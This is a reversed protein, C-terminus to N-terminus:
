LTIGGPTRKKGGPFGYGPTQIRNGKNAEEAAKRQEEIQEQTVEQIFTINSEKWLPVVMNQGTQNKVILVGNNFIEDWKKEDEDKIEGEVILNIPPEKLVILLPM